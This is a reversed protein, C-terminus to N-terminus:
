PPTARGLDHATLAGAHLATAVLVGTAGAHALQDLDGANRVGGAAFVARGNAREAIEAVRHTDPGTATGVRDLTMVIVRSPWSAVDHHLAPPGAFSNGRFDLSLVARPEAHLAALTSCDNQSESGIVLSHPFRRLWASAAVADAIGNDVWIDIGYAVKTIEAIAVDNPARREIADIDAVYLHRFRFLRLLGTAIDAPASTPSLPSQVPHYRDRRGGQALVVQGDKIDIVPIIIM